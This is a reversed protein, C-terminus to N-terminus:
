FTFGLHQLETIFRLFKLIYHCKRSRHWWGTVTDLPLCRFNLKLHTLQFCYPPEGILSTKYPLMKAGNAAHATGSTYATNASIWTKLMADAFNKFLKCSILSVEASLVSFSCNFKLCFTLCESYNLKQNRSSNNYFTNKLKHFDKINKTDQQTELSAIFFSESWRLQSYINCNLQKKHTNQM